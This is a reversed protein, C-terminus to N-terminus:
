PARIPIPPRLYSSHCAVCTRAVAAFHDALANDDSEVTASAALKQAAGRLADQQDFFEPPLRFRKGEPSTRGLRAVIEEDAIRGALTRITPRDLLVVARVLNSMTNGHRSMRSKFETATEATMYAAAPLRTRLPAADVQRFAVGLGVIAALTIGSLAAYRTTNSHSM